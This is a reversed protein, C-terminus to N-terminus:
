YLISYWLECFLSWVLCKINDSFFIGEWFHALITHDLKTIPPDFGSYLGLIVVSVTRLEEEVSYLSTM